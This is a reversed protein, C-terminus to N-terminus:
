RGRRLMEGTQCGRVSGLRFNVGVEARGGGRSDAEVSVGPAVCFDISIIDRNVCVCVRARNEDHEESRQRTSKDARLLIVLTVPTFTEKKEEGEEEGANESCGPSNTIIFSSIEQTPM